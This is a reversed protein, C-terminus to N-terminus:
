IDKPMIQEITLTSWLGSRIALIRTRDYRNNGDKTDAWRGYKRTGLIKLFRGPWDPTNDPKSAELCSRAPAPGNVSHSHYVCMALDQAESINQNVVLVSPNEVGCIGRYANIEVTKNSLLLSKKASEIQIRFTLPNNFLENFLEAWRKAKEWEPGSPPVKGNSPTFENRVVSGHVKLGTKMDRLVGANDLTWGCKNFAKLLMRLPYCSDPDIASRMENILEWISGQELSKPLVAIKHELGASMGAGDYSQILGFKGGVEVLSTLYLAREIHSKNKPKEYVTYKDDILCGSYQKWTKHKITMYEKENIM